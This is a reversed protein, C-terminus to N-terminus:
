IPTVDSSNAAPFARVYLFTAAHRLRDSTTRNDATQYAIKHHDVWNLCAFREHSRVILMVADLFNISKERDCLLQTFLSATSAPMQKLQKEAENM